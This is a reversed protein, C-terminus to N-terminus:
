AAQKVAGRMLMGFLDGTDDPEAIINLDQFQGTRQLQDRVYRLASFDEIAFSVSDFWTIQKNDRLGPVDGRM